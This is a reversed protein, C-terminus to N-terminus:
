LVPYQVAIFNDVVFRLYTRTYFISRKGGNKLYDLKRKFLELAIEFNVLDLNQWYKCLYKSSYQKSEFVRPARIRYELIQMQLLFVRSIKRRHFIVNEIQLM